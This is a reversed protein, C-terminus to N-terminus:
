RAERLKAQLRALVAPAVLAAVDGGLTAIERVFSSSVYRHADGPALFVTDLTPMLHRNMGAMQFETDFDSVGRMGRVAATAGQALAFDVLLGDFPAVSVGPLGATLERALSLREDLTFLTRKHHAVAVGVVLRPFLRAARAILDEHGRTMPDFTGAYVAIVGADAPAADSM